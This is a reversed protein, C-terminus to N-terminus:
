RALGYRAAPEPGATAPWGRAVTSRSSLREFALQAVFERARVEEGYKCADVLEEQWQTMEPSHTMEPPVYRRVLTADLLYLEHIAKPDARIM